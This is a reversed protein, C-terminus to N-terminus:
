KSYTRVPVPSTVSSSNVTPTTVPSSARTATWAFSSASVEPGSQWIFLKWALEGKPSHVGLEWQGAISPVNEATASLLTYAKAKFPYPPRGTRGYTGTPTKGGWQADLRTAYYAFDLRLAGNEFSGSTPSVREDGNFFVGSVTGNTNKVEFRFPIEVDNVVVTADWLTPLAPAANLLSGAFLLLSLTLARFKV